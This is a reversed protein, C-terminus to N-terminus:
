KPSGAGARHLDLAVKLAGRLGVKDDTILILPVDRSIMSVKPGLALYAALLPNDNEKLRWLLKELIGGAIFLGEFPMLTVAASGLARGYVTLFINLATLAESQVGAEFAQQALASVHQPQLDPEIANVAQLAAADSQCLFRYVDVLGPGSVIREIEIYDGHLKMLYKKLEWELETRPSFSDIMGGESAFVTFESSGRTLFVLGLGTGAGMCAIVGDPGKTQGAYLERWESPHSDKAGNGQKWSAIAHGISEFDNVFRMTLPSSSSGRFIKALESAHEINGPWLNNPDNNQGENWVPGCVAWCVSVLEPVSARSRMYADRVSTSSERDSIRCAAALDAMCQTALQSYCKFEAMRYVREFFATRDVTLPDVLSLLYVRVRGNTGGIDACLVAKRPGRPATRLPLPVEGPPVEVHNVRQLRSASAADLFFAVNRSSRLQSAPVLPGVYDAELAAHVIDAKNAGPAMVINQVACETLTRLGVSLAHTPLASLERQPFDSRSTDISGQTLPLKRTVSDEATPPDNFAVHGNTGLGLVALDLPDLRLSLEYNACERAVGEESVGGNLMTAKAADLGVPNILERTLYQTFCGPDTQPVGYYEDGSVLRIASANLNERNRLATFFGEPGLPTTGAPFLIRPEGTSTLAEVYAAAVASAQAKSSFVFM